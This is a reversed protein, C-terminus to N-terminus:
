FLLKGAFWVQREGGLGSGRGALNLTSTIVGFTSPDTIDTGPNGLHPTNTVGFVEMRFQFTTKENIKFNRFLSADLNFFGPGRLINRGTNGFRMEGNPVTRFSTPDFYHCSIDTAACTVGSGPIPGSNGLIHIPAVKDVTQENGPANISSSSGFLTLPTGSARQLMWNVQWGEGITKLKGRQAWRKNAGFPLEYIGYITMNHTRDYSALAKNRNRYEPYPWFLYGGKETITGNAEENDDSNIAKSLTYTLGITSSGTLKRTLKIQMSDYYSNADPALANVDGWSRHYISNLLRGANGGGIPAANINESTLMRIGRTGVYAAEMMVGAIETQVTFNYSHIYGRRFNFPITNGPNINDPLPIVGSSVDPIKVAPIGAQLGPYPHLTEGTLSGVPYFSTSGLVDSNTTAPYNNRLFRWNNNDASMGYGGRIVIRPIVRYAFGFRPLWQGSGVDVGCDLPTNGHGGILVNGTSPDFLRVGGNDSTAFPYYEWRLGYNLTLKQNIQWRDKVYFSWTKFRLSNPNSNQVAKGVEDPFGLLFQALTNAKNSSPGGNLSTVDGSFRFAGRATQFSGGQPQFHNLGSRTNEIGFRLTHSGAIWSVNANSVYQNDRFQFPNGTISNGIANWYNQGSPGFLFAPTGQSMRDAGNTGPIKLVDLGYNGLDLDSDQEAGLRQRTFGFNLDFQVAPSM